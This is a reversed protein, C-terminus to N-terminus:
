DQVLFVEVAEPEEDTGHQWLHAHSNLVRPNGDDPVLILYDGGGNQAIAIAAQPFGEWERASATERVINMTSRSIHKRDTNDFVSFLEWQEGAAQITGGNEQLLRQRLWQPLVFGLQQETAVIFSDTTPLGM